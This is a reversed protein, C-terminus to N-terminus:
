AGSHITLLHVGILTEHFLAGLRGPSARPPGSRLPSALWLLHTILHTEPSLDRFQPCTLFTPPGLWLFLIFHPFCDPSVLPNVELSPKRGAENTPSVTLRPSTPQPCQEDWSGEGLHLSALNLLYFM